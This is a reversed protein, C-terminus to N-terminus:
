LFWHATCEACRYEELFRDDEVAKDDELEELAQEDQSAIWSANKRVEATPEFPEQKPQEPLPPLNGLKRHIDDWETTEPTHNKYVTTGYDAM